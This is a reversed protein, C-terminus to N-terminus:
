WVSCKINHTDQSDSLASSIRVPALVVPETIISGSADIGHQTRLHSQLSGLALAKRCSPVPCVTRKGKRKSYTDGTDGTDGTGKHQRKCGISPQNISMYTQNFM